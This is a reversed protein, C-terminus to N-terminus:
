PAEKITCRPRAAARDLESFPQKESSQRVAPASTTRCSRAMDPGEDGVLNHPDFAYDAACRAGRAAGEEQLDPTDFGRHVLWLGTRSPRPSRRPLGPRPSASRPERNRASGNKLVSSQEHKRRTSPLPSTRFPGPSGRGQWPSDVCGARRRLNTSLHRLDIGSQGTWILGCPQSLSATSIVVPM